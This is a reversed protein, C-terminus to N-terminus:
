SLSLILYRESVSSRSIYSGFGCNGTFCRRLTGDSSCYDAQYQSVVFSDAFIRLFVRAFPEPLTKWLQRYLRDGAPFRRIRFTSFACSLPCTFTSPTRLRPFDDPSSPFIVTVYKKATKSAGIGEASWGLETIFQAGPTFGVQRKM